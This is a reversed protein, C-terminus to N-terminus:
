EKPVYLELMGKLGGRAGAFLVGFIVGNGLDSLTLQDILPVVAIAFGTLFTLGTSILWRKVESKTKRTM